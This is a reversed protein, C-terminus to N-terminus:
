KLLRVNDIYVVGKNNKANWEEVAFALITMEQWNAINKFESFNIKYDHWKHPIDKLYIESKEKFSNIFEVRLAINDKFNEKKLSFGLAKYKSLDLKNLSLSLTEKKAPDFDFNIKLADNSLFLAVESRAPRGKLLNFSLFTGTVLIILSFSVFAPHKLVKTYAKNEKKKKSSADLYIKALHEYIDKKEM